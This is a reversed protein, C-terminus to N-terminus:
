DKRLFLPAVPSKNTNVLDKIKKSTEPMIPNLMRGITNLKIVLDTIVKQGAKKDTKVLKFPATEQIMKDAETIKQWILDVAKQIEYKELLGFFEALISKEPVAVPAELNTEAMKMVRSVLNGLGNALNANYAEKFMEVTM